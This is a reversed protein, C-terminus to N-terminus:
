PAGRWRTIGVETLFVALLTLLVWNQLSVIDIRAPREWATRLDIVDKGGTAASLERLAKQKDPSSDWEPERGVSLPGFAWHETGAQVVGRVWGQAPLPTRALYRGPEMKEWAVEVASDTGKAFVLRPPQEAFKKTWAEDCLLEVTLDEGIVRTRLSTGAPPAAPLLWRVLTREFDAAQSWARFGESFEGGLPFSIAATRGAGRSWFAVLPAKYEDESILAAAAEPRLYSLNYADVLKPWDLSQPSIERWSGTESAAVPETLFASRAIAVTEQAFLAPLQAPDANFFVRGKGRGAVDELFAADKDTSSGLGIVSVTAGQDTMETLLERYAGPEEADAADSFLIVHRQGAPSNKLEQWAANLGKYVFIGGGTSQIKRVKAGLEAGSGGVKVLPVIQHPESDVAFVTVADSPGLLEIARAAGDNALDMKTLGGGAGVAMSGSRDLVIAMAVALKRHEQRLEMSVPLLPDIPSEFYGGAGFSHRGGAMLLGGGQERVFFDLAELFATPVRHAPVNNFIVVRPGTLLGPHLSLTDTVLEVPYGGERLVGALPDDAYSSILLVSPGSVVEVWANATNNGPRSDHSLLRVDFKHAGPRSLRMAVRAAGRGGTFNMQGTGVREGDLLVEYPIEGDAPALGQVELLFGEGPQVRTPATLDNLRADDVATTEWRVDLPVGAKKLATELGDLTETSYGDTVALFRVARTPDRRALTYELALRLRTTDLSPEFAIGQQREMPASAFDVLFLRDNRGKGAAVLREIEPLRPGLQEAASASRDVLMWLDMGPTSMRLEPRTLFLALLILCIARLPKWLALRPWRWAVLGFAPLLLLWQPAALHPM